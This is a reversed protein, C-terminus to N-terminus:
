APRRMAHYGTIHRTRNQRHHIYASYSPLTWGLAEAQDGWALLFHRADDVCLHWRHPEVYEPCRAELADLTAAFPLPESVPPHSNLSTLSNLGTPSSRKESVESKEGGELDRVARRFTELYRAAM